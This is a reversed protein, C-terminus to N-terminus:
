KFFPVQHDEEMIWLHDLDPLIQQQQQQQQYDEVMVVPSAEEVKSSALLIAAIGEEVAMKNDEKEKEEEEQDIDMAAPCSETITPSLKISCSAKTMFFSLSPHDTEEACSSRANVPVSHPSDSDYIKDDILLTTPASPTQVNVIINEHPAASSVAPEAVDEVEEEEEKEEKEEKEEAAVVVVRDTQQQHRIRMKMMKANM